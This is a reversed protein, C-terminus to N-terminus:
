KISIIKYMDKNKGIIVPVTDGAKKGVVAKGIPAVNSIKQPVSNIDSETAGVLIFEKKQKTKLNQIVVTAGPEGIDYGTKTDIIECNDVIAELESIRAEILGQQERAIQYEANESLDGFERATKIDRANKQRAVNKYIKFEVYLSVYTELTLQTLEKESPRGSTDCQQSINKYADREGILVEIDSYEPEHRLDEFSCRGGFKGVKGVIPAFDVSKEDKHFQSILDNNEQLLKEVKEKTKLSIKIPM